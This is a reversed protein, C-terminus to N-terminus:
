RPLEKELCGYGASGRRIVHSLSDNEAYFCAMTGPVKRFATTASISPYSRHPAQLSGCFPIRLCLLSFTFARGLPRDRNAEDRSLAFTKFPLIHLVFVGVSPFSLIDNM